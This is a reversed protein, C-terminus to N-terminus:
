FNAVLVEVANKDSDTRRGWKDVFHLSHDKYFRAVSPTYHYMLVMRKDSNTLTQKLQRHNVRTQDYGLTAGTDEFINLSYDGVPVLVYDCVTKIKEISEWFNDSKNLQIDLMGFPVRMLNVFAAPNYSDPEFEGHSIYGTKSYKNLLFFIGARVFPDAYNPQTEQLLYFINPDEINDFYTIVSRVQEPNQKLCTWFEYISYSNTHSVVFRGDAALPIEVGGDFMLFSHIVSGVPLLGKLVPLSKFQKTTLKLPSKM